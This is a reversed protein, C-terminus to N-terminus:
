PYEWGNKPLASNIKFVVILIMIEVLLHALKIYSKVIQQKVLIKYVHEAPQKLSQALSVITSEIKESYKDILKEANSNTVYQASDVTAFSNLGIAM